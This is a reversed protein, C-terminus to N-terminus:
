TRGQRMLWDQQCEWDCWRQPPALKVECNLCHGVAAPGEPRRRPNKTMAEIQVQAADVDDAM